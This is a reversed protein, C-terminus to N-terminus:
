QFTYTVVRANLRTALLIRGKRLDETHVYQTQADSMLMLASSVADVVSELAALSDKRASM